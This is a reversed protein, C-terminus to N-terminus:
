VVCLAGHYKAFNYSLDVSMFDNEVAETRLMTSADWLLEPLVISV